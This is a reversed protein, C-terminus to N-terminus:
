KGDTAKRVLGAAFLNPDGEVPDDLPAHVLRFEYVVEDDMPPEDTDEIEHHTVPGMPPVGLKHVEATLYRGVEERLTEWGSQGSDEVLSRKVTRV